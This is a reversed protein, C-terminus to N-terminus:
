FKHWIITAITGPLISGHSPEVDDDRSQNPQIKLKQRNYFLINVDRNLSDGGDHYQFGFAYDNLRNLFPACLNM